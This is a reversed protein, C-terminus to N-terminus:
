DQEGIFRLLLSCTADAATAYTFSCATVADAANFTVTKTGPSWVAEGPNPTVVGPAAMLLKKVGGSTAATTKIQFITSPTNALTAVNATVALAAQTPTMATILANLLDGALISQLATPLRNPDSTNLSDRLTSEAGM